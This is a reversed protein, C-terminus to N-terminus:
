IEIYKISKIHDVIVYEPKQKTQLTVQIAENFAINFYVINEFSFTYHGKIENYSINFINLHHFTELTKQPIIKIRCQSLNLNILHPFTHYNFWIPISRIGSHTIYISQLNQLYKLEFPIHYIDLSDFAIKSLHTLTCLSTPIIFLPYETLKFHPKKSHKYKLIRNHQNKYEICDYNSVVKWMVCHRVNQEWNNEDFGDWSKLWEIKKEGFVNFFRQKWFNM